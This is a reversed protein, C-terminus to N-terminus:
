GIMLMASIENSKGLAECLSSYTEHPHVKDTEKLRIQKQTLIRAVNMLFTDEDEEQNMDKDSNLDLDEITKSILENM